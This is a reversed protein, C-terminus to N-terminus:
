FERKWWLPGIKTKEKDSGNLHIMLLKMTIGLGIIERSLTIYDRTKCVADTRKVFWLKM